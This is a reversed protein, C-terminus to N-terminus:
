WLMKKGTRYPPCFVEGKENREVEGGIVADKGGCMSCKVREARGSEAEGNRWNWVEKCSECWMNCLQVKGLFGQGWNEETKMGKYDCGRCEVLTVVEWRMTWGEMSM